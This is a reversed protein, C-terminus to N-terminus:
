IGTIFITHSHSHPSHARCTNFCASSAASPITAVVLIHRNHLINQSWSGRLRMEFYRATGNM